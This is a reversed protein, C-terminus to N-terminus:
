KRPHALKFVTAGGKRVLGIARFMDHASAEGQYTLQVPNNPHFISDFADLAGQTETSSVVQTATGPGRSFSFTEPSVVVQIAHFKERKAKREAQTKPTPKTRIAFSLDWSATCEKGREDSIAYKVGQFATILCAELPASPISKNDIVVSQASGTADVNWSFFVKGEQPTGTQAYKRYCAIFHKLNRRTTRAITPDNCLDGVALKGGRASVLTRDPKAEKEKGAKAQHDLERLSLKWTEPAMVPPFNRGSSLPIAGLQGQADRALFLTDTRKKFGTVIHTLAKGSVEPSIAIFVPKEADMTLGTLTEALTCDGEGCEWDLPTDQGLSLTKGTVRLLTGNSVDVAKLASQTLLPVKFPTESATEGVSPTARGKEEPAPVQNKPSTPEVRPSPIDQTDEGTCGPSLCLLTLAIGLGKAAHSKM